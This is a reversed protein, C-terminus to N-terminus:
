GGDAEGIAERFRGLIGAPMAGGVALLAARLDERSVIIGDSDPTVPVQGTIATLAGALMGAGERTGDCCTSIAALDGAPDAVVTIYHAIKWRELGCHASLFDRADGVSGM